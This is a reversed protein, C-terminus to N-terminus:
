TKSCLVHPEAPLRRIVAATNDLGLAIGIRLGIKVHFVFEGSAECTAAAKAGGYNCGLGPDALM